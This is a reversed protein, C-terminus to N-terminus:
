LCQKLIATYRDPINEYDELVRIINIMKYSFPNNYKNIWYFPMKYNNCKYFTHIDELCDITDWAHGSCDCLRKRCQSCKPQKFKYAIYKYHPENINRIENEYDSNEIDLLEFENFSRKIKM